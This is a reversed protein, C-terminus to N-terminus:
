KLSFLFKDLQKHLSFHTFLKLDLNAINYGLDLEFGDLVCEEEEVFFAADVLLLFFLRFEVAFPM